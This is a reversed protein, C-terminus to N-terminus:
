MACVSLHLCHTLPPTLTGVGEAAPVCTSGGELGAGAGSQLDAASRLGRMGPEQGRGM